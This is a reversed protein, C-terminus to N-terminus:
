SETYQDAAIGQFEPQWRRARNPGANYGATALVPSDSLQRQITSLYFTGYRINTNMDTLAEPNSAEGMQRAVLKATDPMIQMLGDAGVHSRPVTNLRSEQLMLDYACVPSIGANRGYSVVNNQRSMPVRENDNHKNATRDAAYIARDHWGMDMARKAAALLLDDDKKLYAQRVAWNWERNIYNEPASINRLTFARRFHIDQNLRQMAQNSPQAP